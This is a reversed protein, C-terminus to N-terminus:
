DSGVGGVLANGHYRVNGDASFGLTAIGRDHGGQLISVTEVTETNWM